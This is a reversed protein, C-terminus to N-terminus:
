QAEGEVIGEGGGEDEIGVDIPVGYHVARTLRTTVELLEAKAKDRELIAKKLYVVLDLAEQYADVLADRGDGVCLRTGYKATGIRDREAIDVLVADWVAPGANPRPPPEPANHSTTKSPSPSPATTTTPAERPASSGPCECVQEGVALAGHYKACYPAHYQQRQHMM